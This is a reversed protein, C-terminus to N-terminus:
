QRTQPLELRDAMWSRAHELAQPLHKQIAQRTQASRFCSDLKGYAPLASRLASSRAARVEAAQPPTSWTRAGGTKPEAHAATPRVDSALARLLHGSQALSLRGTYSLMLAHGLAFDEGTLTQNAGATREGYFVTRALQAAPSPPPSDPRMSEGLHTRCFDEEQLVSFPRDLAAADPRTRGMHAREQPTLMLQAFLWAQKMMDAGSETKNLMARFNRASPDRVFRRADPLDSLLWSDESLWRDALTQRLQAYEKGGDHVAWGYREDCHALIKEALLRSAKLAQPPPEDLLYTTLHKDLQQRFAADSTRAKAAPAFMGDVLRALSQVIDAPMDRTQAMRMLTARLAKPTLTEGMCLAGLEEQWDRVMGRQAQNMAVNEMAGQLMHLAEVAVAHPAGRLAAGSPEVPKQTALSKPPKGPAHEWGPQAASTDSASAIDARAARQQLPTAPASARAAFLSGFARGLRTTKAWAVLRRFPASWRAAKPAAADSAEGAPRTPLPPRSSIPDSMDFREHSALMFVRGMLPM